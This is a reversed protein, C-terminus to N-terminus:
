ESGEKQEIYGLHELEYDIDPKGFTNNVLDAGYRVSEARAELVYRAIAQLLEPMPFSFGQSAFVKELKEAEIRLNDNYKNM